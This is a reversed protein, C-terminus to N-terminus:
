ETKGFCMKDWMNRWKLATEMESTWTFEKIDRYLISIYINIQTVRGLVSIRIFTILIRL